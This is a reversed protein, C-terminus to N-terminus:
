AAQELDSDDEMEVGAIEANASLYQEDIEKKELILPEEVLNEDHLGSNREGLKEKKRENSVKNRVLWHEAEADRDQGSRWYKQDKKLNVQGEETLEEQLMDAEDNHVYQDVVKQKGNDKAVDFYRVGESDAHAVVGVTSPGADSGLINAREVEKETLANDYYEKKRGFFKEFM